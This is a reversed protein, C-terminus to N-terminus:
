IQLSNLNEKLKNLDYQYNKQKKREHDIVKGPARKIFNNNDLKKNVAGLRGTVDEIQKKLREIEKDIDILGKLPIFIELGKIIATASKPPKAQNKGTQINEIKALRCNVKIFKGNILDELRILKKLIEVSLDVTVESM